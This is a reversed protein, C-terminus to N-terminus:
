ADHNVEKARWCVADMFSRQDAQKVSFDIDLEYSKGQQLNFKAINDGKVSFLISKPFEPKSNDYLAVYDQRQWDYGASSTGSQLNSVSTITAIFKM